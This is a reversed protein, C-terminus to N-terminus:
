SQRGGSSRTTLSSTTDSVSWFATDKSHVRSRQHRAALRGDMRVAVMRLLRSRHRDLLKWRAHDDGQGALDLLADTEPGNQAM